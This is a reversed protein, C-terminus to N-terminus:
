LTIVVITYLVVGICFIGAMLVVVAKAAQKDTERFAQWESAPFLDGPNPATPHHLDDIM